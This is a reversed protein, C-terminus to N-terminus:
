GNQEELWQQLQPIEWGMDFYGQITEEDWFPFKQLAQAMRPDVAPAAPVPPGGGRAKLPAASEPQPLFDEDEYYDDDEGDGRNLVVMVVVIAAILLLVLGVLGGIVMTDMGASAEEASLVAFTNTSGLEVGDLDTVYYRVQVQPNSWQGMSIRWTHDAGAAIEASTEVEMTNQVAGAVETVVIAKMRGPINGGNQLSVILEVDRGVSPSNTNMLVNKVEFDAAEFRLMFEGGEFASDFNGAGKISLGSSDHGSVWFRLTVGDFDEPLSANWLNFCAVTGRIPDANTDLYIEESLWQHGPFKDYFETWNGGDKFFMWNLHVDGQDLRQLEEIYIRMSLCDFDSSSIEGNSIDSGDRDTLKWLEMNAARPPTSDVNVTFTRDAPSTHDSAGEPLGELEFSYQFQNTQSPAQVFVEFTGNEFAQDQTAAAAYDYGKDFDPQAEARDIRISLPIEPTIVIGEGLREKFAYTGSVRLMDGKYVFGSNPDGVDSTIYGVTDEVKFSSLDLKIGTSYSWRQKYLDGSIEALRNSRDKIQIDPTNTAGIGVTSISWSLRIPLDLVFQTEFPDLLLGGEDDDQVMEAGQGDASLTLIEIWQSDTWATDNRPSYFIDMDGEERTNMEITFLDIDQWGNDDSGHVRLHYTNGAYLSNNSQTLETGYDDTIHFARAFPSRSEMGIYTILDFGFGPAGGGIISNGGVDTGSVFLSVKRPTSDGENAIDNICDSGANAIYYYSESEESERVMPVSHYEASDAEGNREITDHDNEVWYNFTLSEPAVPNDRAAIRFKQCVSSPIWTPDSLDRWEGTSTQVSINILDPSLPDISLTMRIACDQDPSYEAPPCLSDGVTYNALRLRYHDTGAAMNSIAPSWTFNGDASANLTLRDIELYDDSTHTTNSENWQELLLSYSSPDPAVELDQLRVTGVLVMGRSSKADSLNTQEVGADNYLRFSAIGADNEVANGVPPDLLIGAPLGHVGTASISESYLRVAPTDEWDPSIRFRWRLEKGSQIDTAISVMPILWGNENSEYWFSGNEASYRLEAAGTATEFLLSAGALSQGAATITHTTVLEHIEGNPYLGTWDGTRSITSDHGTSTTISLGSLRVAGGSNSSVLIPVSVEGGQSTGLSVGQSLERAIENGDSLARSWTYIICLDRFVVTSGITGNPADVKFRFLVWENGYSDTLAVPATAMLSDIQTEIASLNFGEEVSFRTFPDSLSAVLEEDTGALLSIDLDGMGNDEFAVEAFQVDAGKPLLFSAGQAELNSTLSMTSTSSATNIGNQVGTRFKTQHGLAGFAPDPMGWEIDGDAGVDITPAQPAHGFTLEAHIGTVTCMISSYDVEMGFVNVPEDFTVTTGDTTEVMGNDDPTAELNTVRILVTSDSPNCNDTIVPRIATIPKSFRFRDLPYTYSDDYIRPNWMVSSDETPSSTWSGLQIMGNNSFVDGSSNFGTGVRTGFSLSHLTPGSYRGSDSQFDIRVDITSQISTDIDFLEVTPGSLGSLTRGTRDVIPTNTAPDIISYELSSGTPVNADVSMLGYGDPANEGTPTTPAIHGITVEGSTPLPDGLRFADIYWGDLTANAPPDSHDNRELVFKLRVFTGEHATLDLGVTAWGATAITGQILSNGGLLYAGSPFSTGDCKTTVQNVSAGRQYLGNNNGIPSTQSLDFPVYNFEQNWDVGNTSNQAVVYACDDYYFNNTGAAPRHYLTHYSEFTASTKGVHVLMPPTLLEYTYSPTIGDRYNNDDFDTGWCWSGLGCRALPAGNEVMGLEWDDMPEGSGTGTRQFGENTGEFNANFGQSTLEVSPAEIDFRAVDDYGVFGGNYLPNWLYDGYVTSHVDYVETYQHEAFDSSVMMGAANVTEGEPLKVAGSISDSLSSGRLEVTVESSGDAFTSVSAAQALGMTLLMLCLALARTTINRQREM